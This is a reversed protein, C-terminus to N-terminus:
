HAKFISCSSGNTPTSSPPSTSSLIRLPQTNSPSNTLLTPPSCEFEVFHISELHQKLHSLNCIYKRCLRCKYTTPEGQHIPFHEKIEPFTNFINNCINCKRPLKYISTFPDETPTENLYINHINLCHIIYDDHQRYVTECKSCTYVGNMKTAYHFSLMHSTLMECNEFYKECYCCMPSLKRDVPPCISLTSPSIEIKPLIQPVSTSLEKTKGNCGNSGNSGNSDKGPKLISTLLDVHDTRDNNSSSVGNGNGGGGRTVKLKKRTISIKITKDSSKYSGSSSASSSSSSSSSIKVEIPSTTLKIPILPSSQLNVQPRHSSSCVASQLEQNYSQQRPVPRQVQPPLVVPPCYFIQYRKNTDVPM